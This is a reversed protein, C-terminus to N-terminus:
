ILLGINKAFAVAQTRNSADFARLIAAVHVKVTSPSMELRKAIEKNSLGEGLLNLVAQQRETLQIDTQNSPTESSEAESPTPSPVATIPQQALIAPPVYIGGSLILQVASLMVQSNSSKTIFGTAGLNLAESIQQANEDASLMAVPTAPLKSRLHKLLEFGQTDPLHLDLLILDLDLDTDNTITEAQASNEAELVTTDEELQKLILSLGERFLAHDDILLIKM